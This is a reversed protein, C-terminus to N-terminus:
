YGGDVRIISGNIYSADESVLFYAVKAIEIPDAFRKLLIKDIEKNKYEEDLNENMSTNVWGAAIANVNIYPSFEKAFNHTLSIVGAKSADYDMSEPYYTDIGNTSSINVIKGNRYEMMHMGVYKSVLFTGLLNVDLVRKFEEKTKDELTSDISIGANNILVDIKGFKKVSELVMNKVEEENSVDCKIMLADVNYKSTIDKRLEEALEYSSNYNIIINFGKEAFLYCVAKGIGKSAGTILATKM